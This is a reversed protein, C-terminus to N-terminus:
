AARLQQQEGAIVVLKAPVDSKMLAALSDKSFIARGALMADHLEILVSGMLRLVSDENPFVGIVKSRRKLEKNLREIHNSTRYYRRLGVPLQMVTMSSEFGDDLCSVAAEAVERYDEIIRDRIKRAESISECNFM